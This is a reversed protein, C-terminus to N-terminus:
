GRPQPAVLGPVDRPPASPARGATYVDVRAVGADLLVRACADATAGTTLVDDVLVVHRGRVDAPSPAAFAGALNQRRALAALGPQAHTPRTRVLARPALLIGRRRALTRALLLAQNFGRSRLRRLHLPVPVLLADEGFPYRSAFLTGLAEAVARRREYKLRRIAAALPNLGRGAPLYLATARASAFAPPHHFCAPCRAAPFRAAMPVGCTPCLPPPPPQMTEMCALCLGATGSGLWADCAACRAPFVADLLLRM